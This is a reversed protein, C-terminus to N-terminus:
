TARSCPGVSLLVRSYPDERAAGADAARQVLDSMFANSFIVIPTDKIGAHARVFKVVDM